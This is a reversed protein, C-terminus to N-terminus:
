GRTVIRGALLMSVAVLLNGFMALDACVQSFPLSITRNWVTVSKDAICAGGGLADSTDIMSGTISVTDNGPLDETQNGEKGKHKDYLKSEESPNDFMECSRQHQDRAIACQIADGDCEFSAKCSGSFSGPKCISLDPNEKCFDKDKTDDPPPQNAVCMGGALSYKPPCTGPGNSGEGGPPKKDPNNQYCMNGSKYFGAPCKGEGNPDTGPVNNNNNSPGKNGNNNNSGGGGPGGGNNGGNNNNNGGNNDGDGNGDGGTGPKDGDTPPENCSGGTGYYTVSCTRGGAPGAEACSMANSIVYLCRNECLATANNNSLVVALPKDVECKEKKCQGDVKRSGDPCLDPDPVCLGNVRIETEKCNKPVCAGGMEIEDPNPCPNKKVCQGDKEEYNTSCQCAGAGDDISNEPCASGYM